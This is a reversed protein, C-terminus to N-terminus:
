HPRQPEEKSRKISQFWDTKGTIRKRRRNTFTSAGAGNRERSNCSKEYRNLAAEIANAIWKTSYGNGTLCDAYCKTIEEFKAKSHTTSTTKWRRVFESAATAVKTSEPCASRSLIGWSSAMPKKYFEYKLTPRRPFHTEPKGPEERAGGEGVPGQGTTPPGQPNQYWRGDNDPIGVSMQTDLVPIPKGDISVEGTFNLFDIISNGFDKVIEFMLQSRKMGSVQHKELM